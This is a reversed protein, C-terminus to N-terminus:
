ASRCLGEVDVEFFELEFVAQPDQEGFILARGGIALSRQVTIARKIYHRDRDGLSAKVDAQIADLERGFAEIDTQQIM